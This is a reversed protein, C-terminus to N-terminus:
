KLMFNIEQEIEADVLLQQTKTLKLKGNEDIISIEYDILKRDIIRISYQIALEKAEPVAQVMKDESPIFISDVIDWDIETYLEEILYFRSLLAKLISSKITRM